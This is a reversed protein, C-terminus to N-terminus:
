FCADKLIRELSVAIIRYKFEEIAKFMDDTATKATLNVAPIGFLNGETENKEGLINLPTIIIIIGAANFLMPIWFTMTKRSGTPSVTIIDKRELQACASHIQWNCPTIHF